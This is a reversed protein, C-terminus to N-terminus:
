NRWETDTEILHILFLTAFQPTSVLAKREKERGGRGRGWYPSFFFFFPSAKEDVPTRPSILFGSPVRPPVLPGQLDGGGRCSHDMCKRTPPKMEWRWRVDARTLTMLFPSGWGVGGWFFVFPNKIIHHIQHPHPQISQALSALCISSSFPPPPSHSVRVAAM